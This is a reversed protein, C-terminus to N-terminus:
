SNHLKIDRGRQRKCACVCVHVCAYICVAKEWGIMVYDRINGKGLCLSSVCVCMMHLSSSCFSCLALLM